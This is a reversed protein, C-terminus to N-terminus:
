ITLLVILSYDLTMGKRKGPVEFYSLRPFILVFCLPVSAIIQVIRMAALRYDGSAM